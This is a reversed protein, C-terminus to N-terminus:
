TPDQKRAASAMIGTLTAAAKSDMENLIVGADRAQLKMLIAAALEIDVAALREAAADPRMTAYIDVLNGQAQDLFDNRRQLWAEYEVRKEEMAAIRQDVDKQLAELEAEQIAYRRDRAEDVINSCFREIDDGVEGAAEAVADIAQSAAPVGGFLAAGFAFGAVACVLGGPRSLSRILTRAM